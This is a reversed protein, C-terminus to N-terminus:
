NLTGKFMQKNNSLKKIEIKATLESIYLKEPPILSSITAVVLEIATGFVLLFNTSSVQNFPEM